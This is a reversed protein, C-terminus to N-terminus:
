CPYCSVGWLVRCPFMLFTSSEGSQPSSPPFPFQLPYKGRQRNYLHQMNRSLPVSCIEDQGHHRPIGKASTWGDTSLHETGHWVAAQLWVSALSTGCRHFPFKAEKWLIHWKGFMNPLYNWSGFAFKSLNKTFFLNRHELTLNRGPDTM